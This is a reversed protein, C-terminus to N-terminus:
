MVPIEFIEMNIGGRINREGGMKVPSSFGICIM